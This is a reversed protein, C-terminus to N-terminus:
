NKLCGLGLHPASSTLLPSVPLRPLLESASRASSLSPGQPETLFHTKWIVGQRQKAISLHHNAPVATESGGTSIRSEEGPMAVTINQFEHLLLSTFVYILINIVNSEQQICKTKNVKVRDPQIFVVNRFSQGNTERQRQEM